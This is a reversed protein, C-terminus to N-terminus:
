CQSLSFATFLSCQTQSGKLWPWDPRQPGSRGETGPRLERKHPLCPNKNTQKNLAVKVSEVHLQQLDTHDTLRYVPTQLHGKNRMGERTIEERGQPLAPAPYVDKHQHQAAHNTSEEGEGALFGWIELCPHKQGGKYKWSDTSTTLLTQLRATSNQKLKPNKQKSREM